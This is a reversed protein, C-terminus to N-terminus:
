PTAAARSDSPDPQALPLLPGIFQEYNRWRAISSKNIKQRVQWSSATVVPRQTQHFQLCRPDWPLGIFELMKRSWGEQDEVLAEYPVDLIADAPLVAHWHAMVRQYQGFFHALNQLDNAYGHVVTFNQFYISLCTDIPHRQMHIIRAGPLTAHILGLNEFNAPMKDVVRLADTSRDALLQLYENALDALTRESSLYALSATQWFQMEGAGFVAPHSALIQEALTTGSRPMGVVFVPRASTSTNIRTRELWARDYFQILADTAATVRQPDYTPMYRKSSENARQYHIFAQEFDRVDDFYKGLAYLLHVQRRPMLAKAAIRQVEPLWSADSATMKRVETIGSWAEPLDPAISIASRYLAEAEAFQGQDARLGALTAIAAAFDPKIELARRCHREAEDARNLASLAMSLGVHAEAYQPKLELARQYSDAAADIRALDLLASGLDLHAEAYHPKFELARQYSAMAEGSQGLMQLALGLNHHAGAYHPRLELARRASQVAADVQDLKLLANSLNSHAEAYRPKLEIARRYSAIASDPPQGLELL